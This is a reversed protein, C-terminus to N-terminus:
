NAHVGWLGALHCPWSLKTEFLERGARALEARREASGAVRAVAAAFAADDGAPALEAVGAHFVAPDTHHGSTTVVPLGHALAAAISSRRTSVGDIFPALFVDSAALLRSAERAPQFGAHVTWRELGPVRATGIVLLRSAIGADELARHVAALGDTPRSDHDFGFLALVLEEAGLGHATRLSDREAAALPTVPVLSSMPVLAFRDAPVRSVGSLEGIRERSTVISRRAFRGMLAAMARQVLGRVFGVPRAMVPVWLEHWVIDPAAGRACLALTLAPGSLDFGSASWLYPSYQLVVREPRISALTSLLASLARVGRARVTWTREAEPVEAADEGLWVVHVRARSKLGAAAQLVYQTIASREPPVWPCLIAITGISM